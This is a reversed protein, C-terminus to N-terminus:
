RTKEYVEIAQPLIAMLADYRAKDSPHTAFISTRDSKDGQMARQWIRPAARPDYGARAMYFLGVKDAEAEQERTYSPIWITTGIQFAQRVRTGAQGGRRVAVIEALIEGMTSLGQTKTLTETTHRCNVHAIEHGLVAALETEDRVLGKKPDWLGSFVMLAGGPAAAANVIDCSYLTVSYPLDPLDSVAALRQVMEELRRLNKRDQNVPVGKKRMEATNQAVTEQGLRIDDEISYANTVKEGTVPDISRCSVLLLIAFLSVFSMWGQARTCM